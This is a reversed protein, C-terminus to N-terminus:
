QVADSIGALPDLTPGVLTLAGGLGLTFQHYNVATEAQLTARAGSQTVALSTLLYM